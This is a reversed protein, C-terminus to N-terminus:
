KPTVKESLALLTRLEDNNLQSLDPKISVPEGDKGTVEVKDTFMKLYRGLLELAPVKSHFKVKITSGFKGPTESVESICAKIESPIEASNKITISNGTWSVVQTIDAFGIKRLEDVVESIKLRAEEEIVARREEIADKVSVSALLRAAQENATKPSYNAM